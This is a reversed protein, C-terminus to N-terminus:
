RRVRRGLREVLLCVRGAIQVCGHYLGALRDVQDVPDFRGTRDDLPKDDPGFGRQRPAEILFIGGGRRFGPRM